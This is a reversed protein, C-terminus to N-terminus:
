FDDLPLYSTNEQLHNKYQCAQHGSFSALWTARMYLVFLIFSHQTRRLLHLKLLLMYAQLM